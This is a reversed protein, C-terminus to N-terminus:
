NRKKNFWRRIIYGRAISLITFLITAMGLQSFTYKIGVMGYIIPSFIFTTIIGILTNTISEIISNKKTQEGM